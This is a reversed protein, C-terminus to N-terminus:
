RSEWLQAIESGFSVIMAEAEESGANIELICKETLSISDYQNLTVEEGNVRIGLEGKVCFVMKPVNSWCAPIKQRPSLSFLEAVGNKHNALGYKSLAGIAAGPRSKNRKVHWSKPKSSSEGYFALFTICPFTKGDIDHKELIRIRLFRERVDPLSIEAFLADGNNSKFQAVEKWENLHESAVEVSFAKPFSRESQTGDTRKRGGVFMSKIVAKDPLEAIIFENNKSGSPSCWGSYRDNSLINDENWRLYRHCGSSGVVTYPIEKLSSPSKPLWCDRIDASGTDNPLEKKIKHLRDKILKTDAYSVINSIPKDNNYFVIAPCSQLRLRLWEEHMLTVDDVDVSVGDEEQLIKQVNAAYSISNPYLHSVYIKVHLKNQM